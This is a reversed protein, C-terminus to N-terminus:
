KVKNKGYTVTVLPLPGHEHGTVVCEHTKLIGREKMAEVEEVLAEEQSELQMAVEIPGLTKEVIALHQDIKASSPLDLFGTLTKADTGGCGMVQMAACLQHNICFVATKSNGHMMSKVSDKGGKIELAPVEWAHPKRHRLCRGHLTTAVGFTSESVHYGCCIKDEIKKSQSGCFMQYLEATSKHHNLKRQLEQGRSMLQDDKEAEDLVMEEYKKAFALFDSMHTKHNRVACRRCCVETRLIKALQDISVIRNGKLDTLCCEDEEEVVGFDEDSHVSSSSSDDSYSEDDDDDDHPNLPPPVNFKWNTENGSVVSRRSGGVGGSQLRLLELKM